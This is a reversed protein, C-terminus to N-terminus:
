NTPGLRLDMQAGFNTSLIKGSGLQAGGSGLQAEFIAVALAEAAVEVEM